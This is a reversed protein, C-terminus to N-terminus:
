LIQGLLGAYEAPRELGLLARDTASALRAAASLSAVLGALLGVRTEGRILCEGACSEEKQRCRYPVAAGPGAHEVPWAQRTQTAM